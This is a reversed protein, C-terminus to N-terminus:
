DSLDDDFCWHGTPTPYNVLESLALLFDKRAMQRAGLSALHATEMQCDILGFHWRDLQRALHALAVKSADTARTFMSEGYFMRGIAVGYLGGVLEGEAWAEVSHAMGAAHLACYAAVIEETIWTGAEGDRPEACARMVDVFCTDTRIEYTGHRLRKRLSRSIAIERPVLVMRPDPSWWLVPEGESYWPFIGHRYADLLRHLSLDAGAALLGNPEHLARQVPPFPQHPTLWPIVAPANPPRGHIIGCIAKSRAGLKQM